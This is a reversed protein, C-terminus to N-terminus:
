VAGFQAIANSYSNCIHKCYLLMIIAYNCICHKTVTSYTHLLSINHETYIIMCHKTVTSYTHLLSINHETYMIMCHKTVTSYTHSLSINHETYIITSPRITSCEFM